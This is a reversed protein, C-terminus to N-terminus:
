SRNGSTRMPAGLGGSAQAHRSTIRPEQEQALGTVQRLQLALGEAEVVIGEFGLKCVHLFVLASHEEIYDNFQVYPTARAVLKALAIKRREIPERRSDEGDLEIMDFPSLMAM